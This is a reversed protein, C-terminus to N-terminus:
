ADPGGYAHDCNTAGTCGHRTPCWKRGFSINQSTRKESDAIKENRIRSNLEELDSDIDEEGGDADDELDDDTDDKFDDDTDDDMDDEFDDDMDDDMDDEFDDDMDNDLARNLLFRLLGM